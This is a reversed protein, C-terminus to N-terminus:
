QAAGPELDDFVRLRLGPNARGRVHLSAPAVDLVQFERALQLFVFFRPFSITSATINHFSGFLRECQSKLISGSQFINASIAIVAAWATRRSFGSNGITSPPIEGM